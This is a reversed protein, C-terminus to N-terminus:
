GHARPEVGERRTVRAGAGRALGVDGPEGPFAERMIRVIGITGPFAERMLIRGRGVTAMKASRAAELAAVQGGLEALQSQLAAVDAPSMREAAAVEGQRCM